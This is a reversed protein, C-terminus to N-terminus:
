LQLWTRLTELDQDDDDGCLALVEGGPGTVTNTTPDYKLRYARLLRRIDEAVRNRHAVQQPTPLSTDIGFFQELHRKTDDPDAPVLRTWGGPGFEIGKSEYFRQLTLQTSRYTKRKETELTNVTTPSIGSEAALANLSLGLATRAMRLQDKSAIIPPM